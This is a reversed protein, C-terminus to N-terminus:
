ELRPELRQRAADCLVSERGTRGDECVAEPGYPERSVAKERDIAGQDRANQADERQARLRYWAGRPDSVPAPGFLLADLASADHRREHVLAHLTYWGGDHEVRRRAPDALRGLEALAADGHGREVLLRGLRMRRPVDRDSDVASVAGLDKPKAGRRLTALWGSQWSAFSKGTAELLVDQARSTPLAHLYASWREAGLETRLHRVFSTAAAFAVGAAKASPLM